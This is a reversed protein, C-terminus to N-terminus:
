FVVKSNESLKQYGETVIRDGRKFGNLAPVRNGRTSGITLVTRHATSDENVKWVFLKGDADKQVSTVPVTLQETPQAISDTFAVNAVMGPLLRHDANAVMIRIDYTHTLADAVVGKEIKGGRYGADTAEVDIRTPTTTSINAIETEPISVKVKVTTIDLINLVPQSPMATEGASIFKKGIIGSVPAVLRCDSVNKRAVELQSAAQAVKSEVEVWKAEPLSGADHMMKYRTHADMAQRMTAEAGSLLNRAQTDDMEALLQGKSVTQGESVMVRQLVGMGTFSVATAQCEEVIGVYTHATNTSLPQVLETSVRIPAKERTNKEGVCGVLGLLLLGCVNVIKM